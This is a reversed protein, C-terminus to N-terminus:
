ILKNLELGMWGATAATGLELIEVEILTYVQSSHVLESQFTLM